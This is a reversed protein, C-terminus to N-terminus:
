EASIGAERIVKGMHTMDSKVTASLQEPSSGVVEVGSNFLKEKMDPQNLVRVVEQNLRTVIAAPTRPPAFMATAGGTAYDYGPVAEALPPLGPVLASPKASTVALARLKGSKIHSASSTVAPFMVQVQGGILNILAAGSGKYPIHVINIRALSKFLEAALHPSGGIATSAYNLDGPRAKALAVLEKATKAPVSPHVTLVNPSTVVMTIPAFDKLPDFRVNQLLPVMWLTGGGALLTYGDPASKSEIEGLLLSARNEVVVQQRLSNGLAPALLRMVFDTSGGAAGTVIRIPKSPYDQTSAAGSALTMFGAAFVHMVAGAHRKM